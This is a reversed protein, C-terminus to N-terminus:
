RTRSGGDGAGAPASASGSPQSSGTATAGQSWEPMSQLKADTTPVTFAGKAGDWSFQDLPLAVRHGGIGVFGGSTVVLRDIKKSETNMLVESVHGIEKGDGGYVTTGEIRSTDEQTLPNIKPQPQAPASTASPSSSSPTRGSPTQALASTSLLAVAAVALPITRM